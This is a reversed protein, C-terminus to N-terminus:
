RMQVIQIHLTIALTEDLPNQKEISFPLIISATPFSQKLKKTFDFFAQPTTTSGQIKYIKFTFDKTNKEGASKLSTIEFFTQALSQISKISPPSQLLDLLAQNNNQLTDISSNLQINRESEKTYVLQTHRLDDRKAKYDQIKPLILNSFAYFSLFLFLVVFILNRIIYEAMEEKKM